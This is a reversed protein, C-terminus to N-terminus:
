RGGGGSIDRPTHRELINCEGHQRKKRNAKIQQHDARLALREFLAFQFNKFRHVDFILLRWSALSALIIFLQDHNRNTLPKASKADQHNSIKVGAIDCARSTRAPSLAGDICLHSASSKATILTV